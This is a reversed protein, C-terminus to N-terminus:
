WGIVLLQSGLDADAIGPGSQLDKSGFLWCRGIGTAGGGTTRRGRSDRSLAPFCQRDDLCLLSRPTAPWTVAGGVCTIRTDDGRVEIALCFESRDRHSSRQCPLPSFACSAENGESSM